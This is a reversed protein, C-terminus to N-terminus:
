DNIYNILEKAKEIISIDGVLLVGNNYLEIEFLLQSDQNKCRVSISKIDVSEDSSLWELEKFLNDMILSKDLYNITKNLKQKYENIFEQEEHPLSEIFSIDNIHYNNSISLELFKLFNFPTVIFQKVDLDKVKELVYRYGRKGYDYPIAVINNEFILIEEGFIDELLKMTKEMEFVLFIKYQLM